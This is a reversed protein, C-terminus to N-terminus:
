DKMLLSRMLGEEQKDIQELKPLVEQDIFDDCTKKMMLQEENWQEPIFIDQANTEKIIFEGGKTKTTAM